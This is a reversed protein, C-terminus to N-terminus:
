REQTEENQMFGGIEITGAIRAGKSLNYFTVDPTNEILEEMYERFMVMHKNTYVSGGGVSEVFFLGKKNSLWGGGIAGDAYDKEKPFAFDTGLLYIKKAGFYLALRVALMTVMGPCDMAIGGCLNKYYKEELMDGDTPVLYKEGKYIRALKWYATIGLFLPIHQNEVGELQKITIPNPDLITVMHPVIDCALLKPFITGVAIISMNAEQQKLFDLGDDVSPGGGVVVFSESSKDIHFDFLPRADSQLNRYFNRQRVERYVTITNDNIILSRLIERADKPARCIEPEFIYHGHGEEQEISYLFPLIDADVTVSLCEQPIWDLVGYHRAYQIMKNDYEYLHIPVSGDSICYLQYAIYGLGCGLLSYSKMAPNFIRKAIQRAEWMPDNQSHYYRGNKTDKLTLFGYLSSELCYGQEDEVCIKNLHNLYKEYKPLINSEIFDALGLYNGNYEQLKYLDNRFEMGDQPNVEIYQRGIVELNDAIQQYNQRAEGDDGSILQQYLCKLETRLVAEQYIEELFEEAM